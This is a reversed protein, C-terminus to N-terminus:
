SRHETARGGGSSFFQRLSLKTLFTDSTSGCICGDEQKM